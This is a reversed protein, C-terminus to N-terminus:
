SMYHANIAVYKKSLDCTWVTTDKRGLNLNVTIEVKKKKYIKNFRDKSPNTFKGNRFVCIRDLYIEFNNQKLGKIESSGVCAAIRGWNPNGGYISTKVLNSNAIKRAVKYADTTTKAKEVKVTVFKTAGEGDEVIARALKLMVFKLMQLFLRYGKTKIKITRNGANGNALLLVCDNTSMDGDVTISNFSRECASKLAEKLCLKDIRADTMIFCLMTAMDPQIMGAGKAIGTILVERGELNFRETALKTKKDTTM